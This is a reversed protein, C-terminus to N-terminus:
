DQMFYGNEFRMLAELVGGGVALAKDTISFCHEPVNRPDIDGIKLGKEVHAREHILGRLVGPIRARVDCGKVTAILDGAEVHDGITCKPLVYGACPSQLLRETTYGMEMGPVGTNPIASGNTILRGLTHGRKTEVVGHVQDPASFGPGIALVLSAMSKNTGTYRKMMTADVVLKPSLAEIIKGEPDILVAVSDYDCWESLSNYLVSKMNEVMHTGSFVSEAVSITRRVTLPCKTELCLVKYGVIWLRYIIGTALDGGGRVIALHKRQM